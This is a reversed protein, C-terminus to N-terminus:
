LYSIDAGRSVPRVKLALQDVSEKWRSGKKSTCLIHNQPSITFTAIPFRCGDLYAEDVALPLASSLTATKAGPRFIATKDESAAKQDPPINGNRDQLKSRKRKFGPPSVVTLGEREVDSFSQIDEATEAKADHAKQWKRKSRPSAEVPEEEEEEEEEDIHEVVAKGKGKDRSNYSISQPQSQRAAQTRSARNTSSEAKSSSNYFDEAVMPQFSPKPPGNKM